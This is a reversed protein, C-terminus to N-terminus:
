STKQKTHLDKKFLCELHTPRAQGSPYVQRGKQKGRMPREGTIAQEVSFGHAAGLEVPVVDQSIGHLCKPGLTVGLGGHLLQHRRGSQMRAAEVRRKAVFAAQQQRRDIM